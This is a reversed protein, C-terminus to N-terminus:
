ADVGARALLGRIGLGYSREDWGGDARAVAAMFDDLSKTGLTYRHVRTGSDAIVHVTDTHLDAVYDCAHARGLRFYAPRHGLAPKRTQTQVATRKGPTTDSKSMPERNVWRGAQAM